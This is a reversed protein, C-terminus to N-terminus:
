SAILTGDFGLRKESPRYWGDGVSEFVNCRTMDGGYIHISVAVDRDDSNEIRHYEYPPILCGASAIGAHYSNRPEFRFRDGDRATLEYQQVEIHGDWVGEVCWMGAHDHVATGQGPGWTMVVVSYGLDDNRHLLRRAYHGPVATRVSEPLRIEGSRILKCLGVKIRDTTAEVDPLAAAEDLLKVLPDIRSQVVASPSVM